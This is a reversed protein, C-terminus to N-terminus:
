IGFLASLVPTAIIGGVIGQAYHLAATKWNFTYADDVNKWALFAHIDPGVAGCLGVIAGHFIASHCIVSWTM